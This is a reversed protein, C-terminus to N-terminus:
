VNSGPASRWAVQYGKHRPRRRRQARGGASPSTYRAAPQSPYIRRVAIDRSRYLRVALVADTAALYCCVVAATTYHRHGAALCECGRRFSAPVLNAASVCTRLSTSSGWSCNQVLGPGSPHGHLMVIKESLTMKALLAAARADPPLRHDQWSDGGGSSSSHTAAAAICAALLLVSSTARMMMMM